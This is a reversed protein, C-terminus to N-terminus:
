AESGLADGTLLTEMSPLTIAQWAFTVPGFQIGPCCGVVLSCNETCYAHVDHMRHTNYSVICVDPLRRIGWMSLLMLYSHM